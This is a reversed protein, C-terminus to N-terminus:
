HGTVKVGWLDLCGKGGKTLWRKCWFEGCEFTNLEVVVVAFKIRNEIVSAFNLQIVYEPSVNFRILTKTNHLWRLNVGM